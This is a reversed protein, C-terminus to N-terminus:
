SHVSPLIPSPAVAILHRNLPLPWRDHESPSRGEYVRKFEFLIWSSYTKNFTFSIICFYLFMSYFNYFWFIHEVTSQPDYKCVKSHSRGKTIRDFEMCCKLSVPFSPTFHPWLYQPTPLAQNSIFLAAIPPSSWHQSARLTPLKFSSYSKGLSKTLVRRQVLLNLGVTSLRSSNPGWWRM